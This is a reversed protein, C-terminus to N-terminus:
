KLTGIGTVWSMRVEQGKVFYLLIQHYAIIAQGLLGGRGEEQSCSNKIGAIHPKLKASCFIM